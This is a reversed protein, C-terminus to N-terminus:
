QHSKEICIKLTEINGQENFLELLSSVNAGEVLHTLSKKALILRESEPNILSLLSSVQFITFYNTNVDFADNLMAYRRAGQGQDKMIRFLSNFREMSMPQLASEKGAPNLPKEILAVRGNGQIAIVMQYGERLQFSNSYVPDKTRNITGNNNDIEYVAFEHKGLALYNIDISGVDTSGKTSTNLPSFKRGELDVLYNKAAKPNSLGEFRITTTQSQVAHCLCTALVVPVLQKM